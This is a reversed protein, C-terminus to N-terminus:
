RNGRWGSAGCVRRLTFLSGDQKSRGVVQMLCKSVWERMQNLRFRVGGGGSEVLRKMSLAAEDYRGTIM